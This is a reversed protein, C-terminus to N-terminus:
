HGVLEGSSLSIRVCYARSLIQLPPEVRHTVRRILVKEVRECAVLISRLNGVILPVLLLGRLM